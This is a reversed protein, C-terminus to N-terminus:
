PNLKRWATGDKLENLTFQNDALVGAWQLRGQEAWHEPHAACRLDCRVPVGALTAEVAAASTHTILMRAGRLAEALTTQAKPKNATWYRWTQVSPSIGVLLHHLGRPDNLVYHMHDLSQEVVLVGGPRNFDMPRIPIGLRDFRLGDTEGIGTHQLANKTVRFMTGRSKDFYANDLFYWDGGKHLVRRWDGVNGEKVGFFVSGIAARPAGAIFADVLMASKAKGPVPFGILM